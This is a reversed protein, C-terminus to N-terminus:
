ALHKQKAPTETTYRNFEVALSKGLAAAFAVALRQIRGRSMYTLPFPFVKSPSSFVKSPSSGGQFPAEEGELGGEGGPVEGCSGGNRFRFNSESPM